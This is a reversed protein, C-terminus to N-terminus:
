ERAEEYRALAEAPDGTADLLAAAAALSKAVDGRAQPDDAAESALARRVDLGKRHAALAAPKDGITATLEGLEFYAKGMAGRSARDPQDKLLGELKGYFEAAGRLLRDRLPKFPDAKLVLDDGVQGHFLKIAEMALNFRQKERENASKLDANAK